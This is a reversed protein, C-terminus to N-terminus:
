QGPGLDFDMYTNAGGGLAYWETVLSRDLVNSPNTSSPGSAVISVNTLRLAATADGWSELEAGGGNATDFVAVRFVFAGALGTVTNTM